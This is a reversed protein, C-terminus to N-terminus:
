FGTLKGMTGWPIMKTLQYFIVPLLLNVLNTIKDFVTPCIVISWFLKTLNGLGLCKVVFSLMLCHCDFRFPQLWRGGPENFRVLTENTIGLTKNNPIFSRKTTQFSHAYLCSHLYYWYFVFLHHAVSDRHNKRMKRIM